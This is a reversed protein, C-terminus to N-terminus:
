VGCEVAKLGHGNVSGAWPLGGRSQAGAPGRPAAVVDEVSEGLRVRGVYRTVPAGPRPKCRSTPML